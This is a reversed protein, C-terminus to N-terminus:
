QKSGEKSPVLQLKFEITAADRASRGLLEPREIEFEGLSIDITGVIEISDDSWNATGGVTVAREVGHIELRAPVELSADSKGSPFEIPDTVTITAKPFRGTELYTSAVIGDRASNDRALSDVALSFTASSLTDGDVVVGGEVEQTRAVVVEEGVVPVDEIIRYGVGSDPALDSAVTWDGSRPLSASGDPTDSAESAEFAAPADGSNLWANVAVLGGVTVVVLAGLIAAIRKRKPSTAMESVAKPRTSPKM